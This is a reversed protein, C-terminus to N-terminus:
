SQEAKALTQQYLSAVHEWDEPTSEKAGYWHTEFERTISSM